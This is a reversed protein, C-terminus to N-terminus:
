GPAITEAKMIPLNPLDYVVQDSESRYAVLGAVTAVLQAIQNTMGVWSQFDMVSAPGFAALYRHFLAPFNSADAKGLWREATTHSARTGAGWTGGPPIQDLPLFSRVAYVTAEKKQERQHELLHWRWQGISPEQEELFPKAIAVLRDIVIKNLQKGFFSRLGRSLAPQIVAQFRQHDTASVLHM